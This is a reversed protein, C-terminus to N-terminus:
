WEGSGDRQVSLYQRLILISDYITVFTTATTGSFIFNGNLSISSELM